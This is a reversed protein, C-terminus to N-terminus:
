YSTQTGFSGCFDYISLFQPLLHLSASCNNGVNFGIACAKWDVSWSVVGFVVLTDICRKVGQPDSLTWQTYNVEVIVAILM